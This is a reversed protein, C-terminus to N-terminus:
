VSELLHVQSLQCSIESESLDIFCVITALSSSLSSSWQHIFNLSFNLVTDNVIINQPDNDECFEHIIFSVLSSIFSDTKKVDKMWFCNFCTKFVTLPLNPCAITQHTKTSAWHLCIHLLWKHFFLWSHYDTGYQQHCYFYYLFWPAVVSTPTWWNQVAAIFCAYVFALILLAYEIFVTMTILCYITLKEAYGNM